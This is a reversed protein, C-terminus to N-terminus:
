EGKMKLKDKCPMGFGTLHVWPQIVIIVRSWGPVASMVPKEFWEDMCLPYARPEFILGWIDLCFQLCGMASEM